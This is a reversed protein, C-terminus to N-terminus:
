NSEWLNLFYKYLYFVKNPEKEMWGISKLGITDSRYKDPFYKGHLCKQGDFIALFTSPFMEMKKIEFSSIINDTKAQNLKNSVLNISDSVASISKTKDNVNKNNAYYTKISDDNPFILKVNKVKIENNVLSEIFHNANISIIILEEYKKGHTWFETQSKINTIDSENKKKHEKIIEYVLNICFGVQFSILGLTVILYNDKVKDFITFYLVTLLPLLALILAIWFKVQHLIENWTLERKGKKM